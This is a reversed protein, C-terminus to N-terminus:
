TPVKGLMPATAATPAYAQCACGEVQCAGRKVPSFALPQNKHDIFHHECSCPLMMGFSRHAPITKQRLCVLDHPIAAAIREWGFKQTLLVIDDPLTQGVLLGRQIPALLPLLVAQIPVMVGGVDATPFVHGCQLCVRREGRKPKNNM